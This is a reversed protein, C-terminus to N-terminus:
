FLLQKAWFLGHQFSSNVWLKLVSWFMSKNSGGNLLTLVPQICLNYYLVFLFYWIIVLSLIHPVAHM